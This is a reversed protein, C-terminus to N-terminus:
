LTVFYKILELMSKMLGVWLSLAKFNEVFINLRHPKQYTKTSGGHIHVVPLFTGGVGSDYLYIHCFSM